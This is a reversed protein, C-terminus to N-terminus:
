RANGASSTGAAPGGAAPASARNRPRRPERQVVGEDETAWGETAEGAAAESEGAPEGRPAHLPQRQEWCRTWLIGGPGSPTGGPGGRDSQHGEGAGAGGDEGGDEGSGDGEGGESGEGGDPLSAFPIDEYAADCLGWSQRSIEAALQTSSWVACGRLLLASSVVRGEATLTGAAERAVDVEALWLGCGDPAALGELRVIDGRCGLETASSESSGEVVLLCLPTSRSCPGGNVVGIPTGAGFAMRLDRVIADDDAPMPQTLNVACLSDSGDSGAGM